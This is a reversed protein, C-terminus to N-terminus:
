NEEVLFERKLLRYFVVDHYEGMRFVHEKFTGEYIMGNKEMIRWSASNEKFARAFIKHLKLEHFGFLLMAQVAETGFGQGWFPKGIWYGLEAHSFDKNVHLSILGIFQDKELYDIAFTYHNGKKMQELMATVFEKGGGKPYPHPINLTTKAVDYDSAYHEISKADNRTIKRICLRDTCIPRM